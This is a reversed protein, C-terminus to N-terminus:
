APRPPVVPNRNCERPMHAQAATWQTGLEKNGRKKMLVPFSVSYRRNNRAGYGVEPVRSPFTRSDEILAQSLGTGAQLTTADVADRLLLLTFGAHHGLDWSVWSALFGMICMIGLNGLIGMIGKTEMIEMIGM